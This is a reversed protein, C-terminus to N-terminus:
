RPQLAEARSEVVGLEGLVNTIELAKRVVGTAPSVLAFPVGRRDLERRSRVLANIAASDLFTAESLDVIVRGAGDQVGDVATTFEPASAMDMEGSIELIVTDDEWSSRIGFSPTEQM